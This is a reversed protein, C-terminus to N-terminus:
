GNDQVEYYFNHKADSPNLEETIRVGFPFDLEGNAEYDQLCDIIEQAEDADAVLVKVIKM